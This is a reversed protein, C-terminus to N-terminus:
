ERSEEVFVSPAFQFADRVGQASREAEDKSAYPGLRVEYLLTGQREEAVLAGDHGAEILQQLAAAAAGEDAFTAALVGWRTARASAVPPAAGGSQRSLSESEIERM